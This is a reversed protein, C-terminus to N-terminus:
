ILSLNRICILSRSQDVCVRAEHRRVSEASWNLPKIPGASIAAFAVRVHQVGTPSRSCLICLRPSSSVSLRLTQPQRGARMHTTTASEVRPSHSDLFGAIASDNVVLKVMGFAIPADGGFHFM